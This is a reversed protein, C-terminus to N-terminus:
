IIITSRYVGIIWAIYAIWAAIDGLAIIAIRKWQNSKLAWHYLVMYGTLVPISYYWWLNGHILILLSSLHIIGLMKEFEDRSFIFMIGLIAALPLVLNGLFPRLIIRVRNEPVYKVTWNEIVTGATHVYIYIDYPYKWVEIRAFYTLFGNLAIPFSFGHVRLMRSLMEEHHKQFLTFGGEAFDMAYTSVYVISASLVLAGLIGACLRIWRPQSGKVYRGVGRWCRALFHILIGMVAYIASFKSAISAGIFAGNIIAPTRRMRELVYTYSLIALSVLLLTYTDLLQHRALSFLIPDFFMAYFLVLLMLPNLEASNSDSGFRSTRIAIYVAVAVSIAVSLSSTVLCIKFLCALGIIYKALPPHEYNEEIPPAGKVYKLGADIYYNEDLSVFPLPIRLVTFFLQSIIITALVLVTFFALKTKRRNLDVVYKPGM